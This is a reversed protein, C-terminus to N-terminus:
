EHRLAELPDVRMARMAPITCALMAVLLLLLSVSAFTLGDSPAVGYLLSAMLRTLALGAVIGVGVGVLVSSIGQRLVLSLVDRSQAGLAVRIGIERTRQQVTFSILGYLGVMALILALGAFSGILYSPYRRLFVSASQNAVQELSQPAILPLDPDIERLAQRVTGVFASPDGRTRVVLSLYSSPGQDSSTYIVEPPPASLDQEAVNGVVGVIEQWPNRADYTFHIRKGIPDEGRFYANVFSQNVIVVWPAEWADTASFFRGSILPIRMTEFYAPSATKIGCEDETGTPKPRGEVIFRISGGGGGLPVGNVSAASQVGPLNRLKETFQHEFRIASPSAFPYATDSPYSSDPLNVDFTLVNHEDFGPNQRLLANLSRLMLGAGALLVLSIAIEAVVFANRVRAQGGSTGGRSEDKLVDNVPTRAMSIGPVLGFLIATGFTVGCMFLLVPINLGADRLFPMSQLQSEPIAAILASVGWQAGFLGLVAGITSLMLSEIFLQSLLTSRGAGLASRIAFEKRRGTSRTMLLSAVNACAILLVFGVAGFLVLLLPRIQGVVLERLSSMLVVTSADEKPYERGLQTMIGDLEAKAQTPSVGDALRGIVTLWRLNRRNALDDSPHLPVWIQASRAPAFEFNRPLVGVITVPKNDLRIARGIVKPDGGFDSRWFAYTLMAVRPSVSQHDDDIFDRGHAPKVGLTSFFNITVQAANTLKPDGNGSLTFADGSTAALSLFSKQTRKWDLLDPYSAQAYTPDDLHQQRSEALKYLKEPHQYPLQRLLASYVVSFIATNAGIGLALTLVTVATFGPYKALMRVGYRLNQWLSTM